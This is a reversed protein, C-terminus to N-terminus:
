STPNTPAAARGGQHNLDQTGLEEILVESPALALRPGLVHAREIAESTCRIDVVPGVLMAEVDTLRRRLHLAGGRALGNDTWEGRRADGVGVLVKAALKEVARASMPVRPKISVHWVPGGLGM